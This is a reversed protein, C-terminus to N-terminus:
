TPVQNKVGALSLEGGKIGTFTDIFGYLGLFDLVKEVSSEKTM